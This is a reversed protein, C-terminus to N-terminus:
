SDFGFVMRVNENGYELGLPILEKNIYEKLGTSRLLSTKYGVNIFVKKDSPLSNSDKLKTYETEDYTVINSGFIGGCMDDPISVGNWNDFTESSIVCYKTRIKGFEYDLMEDLGLYSHSHDGLWMPEDYDTYLGDHSNDDDVVFDDPLGRPYSIPEISDGTITSGFGRGNRVNALIAFSDYNRRDYGEKISEWKNNDLVQVVSHIDCGM